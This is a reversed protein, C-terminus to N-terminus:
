ADLKQVDEELQKLSDEQLGPGEYPLSFLAVKAAQVAWEAPPDRDLSDDVLMISAQASAIDRLMLVKQGAVSGISHRGQSTDWIRNSPFFPMWEPVATLVRLVGTSTGATVIGFDAGAQQMRSLSEAVLKIRAEGGFFVERLLDKLTDAGSKRTFENLIGDMELQQGRPLQLQ